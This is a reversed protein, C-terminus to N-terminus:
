DPNRNEPFAWQGSVESWRGSSKPWEMGVRIRRRYPPPGRVIYERGALLRSKGHSKSTRSLRVLRGGELQGLDAVPLL